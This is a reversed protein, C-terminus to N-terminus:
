RKEYARETDKMKVYLCYLPKSVHSDKPQFTQHRIKTKTKIGANELKLKVKLHEPEKTTLNIEKWRPPFITSFDIGIM